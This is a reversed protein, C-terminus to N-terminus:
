KNNVDNDDNIVVDTVAGFYSTLVHLGLLQTDTLLGKGTYELHCQRRPSYRCYKRDVTSSKRDVDKVNEM